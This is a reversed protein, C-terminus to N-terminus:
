HGTAAGHREGTKTMPQKDFQTQQKTKSLNKNLSNPSSGPKVDTSSAQAQEGKQSTSQYRPSNKFDSQQFPKSEIDKRLQELYGKLEEKIGDKLVNLEEKFLPRISEALQVASIEYDKVKQKKGPVLGLTALQQWMGTAKLWTSEKAIWMFVAFSLIFGILSMVGAPEWWLSAVGGLTAIQITSILSGIGVAILVISGLCLFFLARVKQIAKLSFSLAKLELAREAQTSIRDLGHKLFMDIISQIM